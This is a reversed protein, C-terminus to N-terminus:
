REVPIGADSVLKIYQRVELNVMKEFESQSIPTPQYGFSLLREQVDKQRLAQQISAGVRELVDKPVARQTLIGFWNSFVFGPVSERVTPVEPIQQARQEGTFGLALLKGSKVQPLYSLGTITFQTEGMMVSNAAAVPGSYPIHTIKVGALNNLLEFALHMSGGPGTSAYNLKGPNKRAYDLVENMSKVPLQPSAVILYNSTAILGAGAFDNLPDYPLKGNTAAIASFSTTFLGLTYGDPPAKAVLNIGIIGGAGGRNDVIVPSKWFESMKEGFTRAVVDIQGGAPSPVIIKVVRTPYDAAIAAGSFIVSAAILCQTAFNRCSTTDRAFM